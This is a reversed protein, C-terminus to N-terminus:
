VKRTAGSQQALEIRVEEFEEKRNRMHTNDCITKTASVCAVRKESGQVQRSSRKLFSLIECM